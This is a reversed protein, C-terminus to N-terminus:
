GFLEEDSPAEDVASTAHEEMEGGRPEFGMFHPIFTLTTAGCPGNRQKAIELFKGYPEKQGPVIKKEDDDFLFLVTDADQEIQGSERLDSLQPKREDAQRGLQALVIFTGGSIEGLEHAAAQFDMSAHTVKEFRDKGPADFIQLYDAVALKIGHRKALSRLRWRVEASRM